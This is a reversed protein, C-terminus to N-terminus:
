PARRATSADGPGRSAARQALCSHAPCLAGQAHPPAHRVTRLAERYLNLARARLIFGGLDLPARKAM